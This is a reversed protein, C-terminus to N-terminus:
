CRIVVGTITEYRAVQCGFHGVPLPFFISRFVSETFKLVYGNNMMSKRHPRWITGLTRKAEALPVPLQTPEGFAGSSSNDKSLNKTVPFRPMYKRAFNELM